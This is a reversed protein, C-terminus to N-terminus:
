SKAGERQAISLELRRLKEKLLIRKRHALHAAYREINKAKHENMMARIDKLFKTELRSVRPDENEIVDAPQPPAEKKLHVKKNEWDITEPDVIAVIPMKGEKYKARLANNRWKRAARKKASEGPLDKVMESRSQEEKRM